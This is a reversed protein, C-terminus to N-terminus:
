KLGSQRLISNLTGPPIEKKGPDAATIKGRKIPHVFQKHSGKRDKLVWGDNKLLRIVQAANM